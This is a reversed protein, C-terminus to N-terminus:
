QANRLGAKLKWRAKKSLLDFMTVYRELGFQNGSSARNLPHGRLTPDPDCLHRLVGGLEARLEVPMEAEIVEFAEEFAPRLFVLAEDYGGQWQPPKLTDELHTLVLATLGLGVFLSSILSGMLYVDCALCREWAHPAGGGYLHEPPAYSRAGVIDAAAWYPPQTGRALARGLDTLKHRDSGDVGSVVNSPKVDQHATYVRRHLQNLAAAVDHLVELAWGCFDERFGDIHQRIDGEAREFIIYQVVNLPPAVGAVRVAGRELATIVRSLRHTRCRDLLEWEYEFADLLPKLVSAPDPADKLISYFDLAKLFGRRGDSNDVLYGCSFCSGTAQPPRVVREVVKWGNELELGALLEHPAPGTM